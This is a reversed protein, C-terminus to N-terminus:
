DANEVIWTEITEILEDALELNKNRDAELCIMGIIKDTVHDKILAVNDNEIKLEIGKEALIPEFRRILIRETM